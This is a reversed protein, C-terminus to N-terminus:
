PNIPGVNDITTQSVSNQLAFPTIVGKYNIRGILKITVFPQQYDDETFPNEDTFPEAGLVAFGSLNDIEITDDTLQVWNIDEVTVDTTKYIKLPEGSPAQIAYAWRNNGSFVEKFSLISGYTCSEPDTNSHDPNPGTYCRYESGTRIHRSMDEMVFSLNDMIARMDKSKNLIVNANLLANMGITVVILFLSVSIMTEIITYGGTVSRTGNRAPGSNKKLCFNNKM